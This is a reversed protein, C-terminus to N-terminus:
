EIRESIPFYEKACWVVKVVSGASEDNELLELDEYCEERSLGEKEIVGLLLGCAIAEYQNPLAVGTGTQFNFFPKGHSKFYLTYVMYFEM